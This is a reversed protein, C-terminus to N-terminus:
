KPYIETKSTKLTHRETKILAGNAPFMHTLHSKVYIMRNGVDYGIFKPKKFSEFTIIKKIEFCVKFKM